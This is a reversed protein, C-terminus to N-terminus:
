FKMGLCRVDLPVKLYPILDLSYRPHKWCDVLHRLNKESKEDNLHGNEHLKKSKWELMELNDVPIFHNTKNIDHM